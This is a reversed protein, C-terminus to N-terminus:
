PELIVFRKKLLAPADEPHVVFYRRRESVVYTLNSESGIFDKRGSGLYLLNVGGPVGPNRPLRETEPAARGRQPPPQGCCGSTM